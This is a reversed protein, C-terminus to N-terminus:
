DDNQQKGKRKGHTYQVLAGLNQALGKHFPQLCFNVINQKVGALKIHYFQRWRHQLFAVGGPIIDCFELRRDFKGAFFHCEARRTSPRTTEMRDLAM